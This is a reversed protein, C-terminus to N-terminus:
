SRWPVSSYKQGNLLQGIAGNRVFLQYSVLCSITAGLCVILFKIEAPVLWDHLLLAIGVVPISHFLYIWYSSDSFYRVWPNLSQFKASFLGVFSLMYFGISFGSALSLAIHMTMYSPNVADGQMAFSALAIALLITAIVMDRKWRRALEKLDQIRDYLVWGLFFCLGFYLYVRLDPMLSLNASVRGAQETSGLIGLGFCVILFAASSYVSRSRFLNAIRLRRDRSVRQWATYLLWLAALHLILYYLFWLNHTNNWTEHSSQLLSWDFGLHGKEMVHRGVVRLPTMTLALLPLFVLFPVAIRQYQNKFTAALSRREILLAAFFGSLLFFVPMRFTNIFILLADMLPSRADDWYYDVIPMTLYIQAAHLILGLSMMLARLFDLGHLREATRGM